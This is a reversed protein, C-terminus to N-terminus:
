RSGGTGDRFGRHGLGRDAGPGAQADARGARRSQARDFNGVHGGLLGRDLPTPQALRDGRDAAGDALQAVAGGALDALGLRRYEVRVLQQEVVVLQEVGHPAAISPPMDAGAAHDAAMRSSAASNASIDSGYRRALASSTLATPSWTSRAMSPLMAVAAAEAPTSTAASRVGASAASSSGSCTAATSSANPLGWAWLTIRNRALPIGTM